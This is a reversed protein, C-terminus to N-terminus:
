KTSEPNSTLSVISKRREEQHSVEEPKTVIVTCPCNHVIYDSVSGLLTRKIAGMKRAGMLVVDAKIEKAKRLLESKPDGVMSIAKCAIKSKSLKDAYARLLRHSEERREASVDDVYGTSNIYPAVPIDIQRVHVLVVLDKQPIVFNDIAWHFTTEASEPDLCVLVVRTLNTDEHSHSHVLTDTKQLPPLENVSSM